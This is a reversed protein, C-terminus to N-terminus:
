GVGTILVATSEMAVIKGDKVKIKLPSSVQGVDGISGDCVIVGDAQAAYHRKIRSRRVGSRVRRCTVM